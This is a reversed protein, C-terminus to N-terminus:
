FPTLTFTWQSGFSATVAVSVVGNGDIEFSDTDVTFGFGPVQGQSVSYTGDLNDTIIADQSSYFAGYARGLDYFGGLIDSIAYTNDGTRVIFIADVGAYAEGNDRAVDSYYLGSIDGADGTNCPIVRVTRFASGPISDKNFSSYAITYDDAGAVTASGFYSASVSVGATISEGAISAEVGADTYDGGCPVDVHSAGNVEMLPLFTTFSEEASNVSEECSSLFAVLVFGLLIYQLKKM